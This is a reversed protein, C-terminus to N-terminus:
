FGDNMDAASIVEVDAAIKHKSCFDLMEQTELPVCESIAISPAQCKSEEQILASVAVIARVCDTVVSRRM